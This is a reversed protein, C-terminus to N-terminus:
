LVPRISYEHYAHVTLFALGIFLVTVLPPM